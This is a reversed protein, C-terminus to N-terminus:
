SVLLELAKDALQEPAEVLDNSWRRTNLVTLERVAEVVDAMATWEGERSDEGSGLGLVDILLLAAHGVTGSSAPFRRDTLAGSPDAAAVGEAPPARVLGFMEDLIHEAAGLRRRLETWEAGTLDDRYLVPDEVLRCRMWQRTVARRDARELLEEASESGALAPVP